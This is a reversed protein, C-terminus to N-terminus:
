LSFYEFRTSLRIRIKMFLFHSTVECQNTQIFEAIVILWHFYQSTPCPFDSISQLSMLAAHRVAKSQSALGVLFIPTVRLVLSSDFQSRSWKTQFWRHLLHLSAVCVEPLNQAFVANEDQATSIPLCCYTSVLPVADRNFHHAFLLRLQDQFVLPSAFKVLFFTYLNSLLGLASYKKQEQSSAGIISSLFTADLIDPSMRPISQIVYNLSLFLLKPFRKSLRSAKVNLFAELSSSEAPDSSSSDYKEELLTIQKESLAIFCARILDFFAINFQLTDDSSLKATKKKSSKSKSARSSGASDDDQGAACMESAVASSVILGMYLAPSVSRSVM